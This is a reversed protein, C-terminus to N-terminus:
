YLTSEFAPFWLVCVMNAFTEKLDMRALVCMAMSLIQVLQETQM